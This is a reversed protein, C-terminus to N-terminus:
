RANTIVPLGTEPIQVLYQDLTLGLFEVRGYRSYTSTDSFQWNLPLCHLGQDSAANQPTQDPRCQKGSM